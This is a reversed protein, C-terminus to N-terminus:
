SAETDPAKSAEKPSEVAKAQPGAMSKEEAEGRLGESLSKTVESSSQRFERLAKGVSRGIEPLKSPGFVVLAVLLIVGLEPFGFSQFVAAM